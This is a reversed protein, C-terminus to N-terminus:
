LGKIIKFANSNQNEQRNYHTRLYTQPSELPLRHVTISYLWAKRQCQAIKTFKPDGFTPLNQSIPLGEGFEWHHM